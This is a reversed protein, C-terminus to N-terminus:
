ANVVSYVFDPIWAIIRRISKNPVDRGDSLRAAGLVRPKEM